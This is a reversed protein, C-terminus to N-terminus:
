AVSVSGIARNFVELRREPSLEAPDKAEDISWEGDVVFMGKSKTKMKLELAAKRGASDRDTMVVVYMPSLQLLHRLQIPSIRSGLLAVAPIGVQWLSLADISGEVVAIARLRQNMALCRAQWGGFLNGSIDLGTQYLYKPQGEEPELNRMITGQYMGMMDSFLPIVLANRVPSYGLQFMDLVEESTIGRTAWMKKYQDGIRFGRLEIALDEPTGCVLEQRSAFFNAVKQKVENADVDDAGGRFSKVGLHKALAETNGKAGCAYCIFLGKRINFSFSPSKDDHYPCLALWEVGSRSRVDLHQQAFKANEGVAM